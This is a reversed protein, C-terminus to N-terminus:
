PKIDKLKAMAKDHSSSHQPLRRFLHIHQMPNLYVPVARNFINKTSKESLLDFINDPKIVIVQFANPDYGVRFNDM